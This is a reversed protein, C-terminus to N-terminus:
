RDLRKLACVKFNSDINSSFLQCNEEDVGLKLEALLEFRRTDTVRAMAYIPGPFGHIKQVVKKWMGYHRASLLDDTIGVFKASKNPLISKM